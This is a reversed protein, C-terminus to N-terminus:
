AVGRAHVGALPPPTPMGKAGIVSSPCHVPLPVVPEDNVRACFEERVTFWPEPRPSMATPEVHAFETRTSLPADIFTAPTAVAFWYRLETVVWDPLTEGMGSSGPLLRVSGSVVM